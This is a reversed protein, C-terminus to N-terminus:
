LKFGDALLSLFKIMCKLVGRRTERFEATNIEGQVEVLGCTYNSYQRLTLVEGQVSVAGRSKKLLECLQLIVYRSKNNSCLMM